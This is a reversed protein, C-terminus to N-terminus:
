ALAVPIEEESNFFFFFLFFHQRKEGTGELPPFFFVFLAEARLHQCKFDFASKYRRSFGSVFHFLSSFTEVRFSM